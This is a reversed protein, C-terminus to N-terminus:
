KIGIARNRKIQTEWITATVTPLEQKLDNAYVEAIYM